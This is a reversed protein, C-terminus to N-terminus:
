EYGHGKVMPPNHTIYLGIAIRTYYLLGHGVTVGQDYLRASCGSFFLHLLFGNVVGPFREQWAQRDEQASPRSFM